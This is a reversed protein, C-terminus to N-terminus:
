KSYKAYNDVWPAAYNIPLEGVKVQDQELKITIFKHWEPPDDVPYDSV